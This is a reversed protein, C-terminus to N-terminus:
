RDSRAMALPNGRGALAGVNPLDTHEFRGDPSIKLWLHVPHVCISPSLVDVSKLNM